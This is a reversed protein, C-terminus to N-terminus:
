TSATSGKPLRRMSDAKGAARGSFYNKFGTDFCLKELMRLTWIRSPYAANTVGLQELKHVNKPLHHTKFLLNWVILVRGYNRKGEPLKVSHHWRLLENTNFV